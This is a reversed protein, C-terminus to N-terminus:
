PTVTVIVAGHPPLPEGMTAALRFTHDDCGMAEAIGDLAAKCSALANDLDRRRKDPPRFELSILPAGSAIGPKEARALWYAQSKANRKAVALRAWHARANPSLIRAPWPLNVIM